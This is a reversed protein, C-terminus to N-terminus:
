IMSGSYAGIIDIGANKHPLWAYEGTIVYGGRQFNAVAGAAAEGTIRFRAADWCAAWQRRSKPAELILVMDKVQGRPLSLVTAELSFHSLDGSLIRKSCDKALPVGVDLAFTTLIEDRNIWIQNAVTM